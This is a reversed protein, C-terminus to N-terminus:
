QRWVTASHSWRRTHLRYCWHARSEKATKLRSTEGERKRKSETPLQCVRTLQHLKPREKASRIMRVLGTRPKKDLVNGVITGSGNHKWRTHNMQDDRMGETHTAHWWQSSRWRFVQKLSVIVANHRLDCVWGLARWMSEAIIEFLLALGMQIWIKIAAQRCRTDYEVWTEDTGRKSRFLRMMLKTEWRKIRDMTQTTWSWNESGFSFVSCM